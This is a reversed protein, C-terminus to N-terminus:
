LAVALTALLVGLDKTVPCYVLLSRLGCATGFLMTKMDLEELESQQLGVLHNQNNSKSVKSVQM